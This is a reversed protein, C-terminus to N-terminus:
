DRHSHHPRRKLCRWLKCARQADIARMCLPCRKSRCLWSDCCQQHFRHGCPLERLTEGDAFESLCVACTPCSQSGEVRQWPGLRFTVMKLVRIQEPEAPELKPAVEALPGEAALVNFSLVACAVRSALLFLVGATTALLHPCDACNGANVVWVFGLVLWAYTLLSVFKSLQWAPRGALGCLAGAVDQGSAEAARVTAAFNLRLPVQIAQMLCSSLLWWRLPRDCHGWSTWHMLLMMASALIVVAGSASSRLLTVQIFRSASTPDRHAMDLLPDSHFGTDDM